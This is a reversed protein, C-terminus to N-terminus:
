PVGRGVDLVSTVLRLPIVVMGANVQRIRVTSVLICPMLKWVFDRPGRFSHLNITSSAFPDYAYKRLVPRM